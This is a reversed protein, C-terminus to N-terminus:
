PQVEAYQCADRYTHEPGCTDGMRVRRPQVAEATSQATVEVLPGYHQEVFAPAKNLGSDKGNADLLTLWDEGNERWTCGHADDFERAKPEATSEAVLVAADALHAMLAASAVDYSQDAFWRGCNCWRKFPRGNFAASENVYNAEFCAPKPAFDVGPVSPPEAPAFRSLVLATVEDAAEASKKRLTVMPSWMALVVAAQERSLDDGFCRLDREAWDVLTKDPDPTM